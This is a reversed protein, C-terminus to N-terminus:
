LYIEKTSGCMPCDCYTRIVQFWKGNHSVSSVYVKGAGEGREGAGPVDDFPGGIVVELALRGYGECNSCDTAHRRGLLVATVFFVRQGARKANVAAYYLSQTVNRGALQFSPGDAAAPRQAPRPKATTTPSQYM